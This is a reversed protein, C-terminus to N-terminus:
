ASADPNTASSKLRPSAASLGRVPASPSGPRFSFSLQWAIANACRFDTRQVVAHPRTAPVLGVSNVLQRFRCTRKGSADYIHRRHPPRCSDNDVSSRSSCRHRRVLPRRHATQHPHKPNARTTNATPKSSKRSWHERSALVFRSPSLTKEGCLAGLVVLAAGLRNLRHLAAPRRKAKSTSM